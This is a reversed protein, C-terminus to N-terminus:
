AATGDRGEVEWEEVGMPEFSQGTWRPCKERLRAEAAEKTTFVGHIEASGYYTMDPGELAIWVKEPLPAM